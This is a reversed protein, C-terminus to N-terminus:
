GTESEIDSDANEFGALWQNITSRSIRYYKMKRYLYRLEGLIEGKIVDSCLKAGDECVIYNSGRSRRIIGLAAVNKLAKVATMQNIDIQRALSSTSPVPEGSAIIKRLVAMKIAEAVRLFPSIMPDMEKYFLHIDLLPSQDNGM